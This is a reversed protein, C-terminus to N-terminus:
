SNYNLSEVEYDYVQVTNSASSISFGVYFDLLNSITSDFGTGQAPATIPVVISVDSVSADAASVRGWADTAAITRTFMVGSLRGVGLCKATTGTGVVQCTTTVELIAPLNTHATANLQIAGSSWIAITGLHLEFTVTGPTTVLTGIGMLVKVRLKTGVAFFNRWLDVLSQPNIVSKATTFTGFSAGSAQMQPTILQSWIQAPM